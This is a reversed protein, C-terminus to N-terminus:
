FILVESYDKLPVTFEFNVYIVIGRNFTYLIRKKLM